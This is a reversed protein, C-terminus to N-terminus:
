DSLKNESNMNGAKIRSLILIEFIKSIEPICM